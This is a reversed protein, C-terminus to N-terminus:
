PSRTATWAQTNTTCTIHVGTTSTYTIDERFVGAASGVRNANLGEFNGSFVYSFTATAGAFVGTQSAKASFSGDRKLAAQPIAFTTDNTGGGGPACYLGTSPISITNVRSPAVTFSLARGYGTGAYPGQRALTKLTPAPGSRSATWSQRNTTCTIHAGTSDTYRIDERFTGAATGTHLKTAKSFRGAFSYSLRAPYGAFIGNQAGKASFSGKLGIATKAIGFSTDNTGGGGPACALGTSPMSVNLLSRHSPAVFFTLARGYGIGSYNGPDAVPKSVSMSPAAAATSLGLAAVSIAIAVAPKM